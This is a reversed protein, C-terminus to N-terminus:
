FHWTSNCNTCHAETVEVKRSLGTALMSLGATFIAGTVKGGSIGAKQKVKKTHVYGTKQCQPCVIKDNKKGYFFSDNDYM